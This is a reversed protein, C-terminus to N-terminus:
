YYLLEIPLLELPEHAETAAADLVMAVAAATARKAHAQTGGGLNICSLLCCSTLVELGGESNEKLALWLLRQM